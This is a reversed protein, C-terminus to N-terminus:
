CGTAYEDSYRSVSALEAIRQQKTFVPDPDSAGAM